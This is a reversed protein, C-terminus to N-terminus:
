LITIKGLSAAYKDAPANDQAAILGADKRRERAAVHFMGRWASKPFRMRDVGLADLAAGYVDEAADQVLNVRVSGVFPRVEAQADMVSQLDAARLFGRRKLAADSAAMGEREHEKDLKEREGPKKLLKEAYKVGEAFARQEAETKLSDRPDDDQATPEKDSDTATPKDDGTAPSYALDQLSDTLKKIQEPTLGAKAALEEVLKRVEAAKDEDEVVDVIQGDPERKHLSIITEAAEKATEAADVEQAEVGPEDDKVCEAMSTEKKEPAADAVAVSSGARGEEVLALHNAKIDRMVFDYPEGDHEGPTFDPTFFYSLSLERCVGSEIAEIASGVTFCLSNDLYPAAYVADTGMSGIRHMIQPSQADEHHHQMLIPLGNCTHAAKALEEGPRFGFYIREPELGLGEFGPIERGYYPAVQERSIHSRAVHLFGNVDTSRASQADNIPWLDRHPQLHTM